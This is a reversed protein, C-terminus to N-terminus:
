AALWRARIFFYLAIIVVSFVIVKEGFGGTNFPGDMEWSFFPWFPHTGHETMSDALLHSVFGLAFAMIVNWGVGAWSMVGMALFMAPINHLIIRHKYITDIDPFLAGFLVFISLKIDFGAYTYALLSVALAIALHSIKRM